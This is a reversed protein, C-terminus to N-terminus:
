DARTRRRRAVGIVGLLGTAMFIVSSPEPAVNVNDPVGEIDFDINLQGPNDSYCTTPSGSFGCADPIGLYLSTAADPVYFLQQTAGAFGDGIFFTQGLLPALNLFNEGLGTTFDLGAPQSVPQGSAGLFVGILPLKRLTSIGSIGGVGNMFQYAGYNYSGDPGFSPDVSSCCGIAGGANSFKLVRSTGSLLTILTPLTGDGAPAGLGAYWPNATGKIVATGTQAGAVSALASFLAALAVTRRHFHWTM